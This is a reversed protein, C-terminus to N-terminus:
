ICRAETFFFMLQLKLKYSTEHDSTMLQIYIISNFERLSGLGKSPFHSSVTNATEAKALSRKLGMYLDLPVSLHLSPNLLDDWCIFIICPRRQKRKQRQGERMDM